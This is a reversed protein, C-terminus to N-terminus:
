QFGDGGNQRLFPCVYTGSHIQLDLFKKNDIVERYFLFGM